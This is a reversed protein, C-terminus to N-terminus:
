IIKVDYNFTEYNKDHVKLRSTIRVFLQPFMLHGLTLFIWLELGLLKEIMVRPAYDSPRM